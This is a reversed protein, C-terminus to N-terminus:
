KGGPHGTGFTSLLYSNIWELFNNTQNNVEPSIISNIYDAGKSILDINSSPNNLIWNIFGPISNTLTGKM